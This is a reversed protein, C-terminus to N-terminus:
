KGYSTAWRRSRCPALMPAPTPAPAPAPAPAIAPAPASISTATAPAARFLSRKERADEGPSRGERAVSSPAPDIRAAGRTRLASRLGLESAPAGAPPAAEAVRRVDKDWKLTPPRNPKARPPSTPRGRQPSSASAPAPAPAPAAAVSPPLSKPLLPLARSSPQSPAPAADKDLEALARDVLREDVSGSAARAPSAPRLERSPERSTQQSSAGSPRRSATM